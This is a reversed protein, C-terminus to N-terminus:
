LDYGTALEVGTETISTPNQVHVIKLWFDSLFLKLMHYSKKRFTLHRGPM